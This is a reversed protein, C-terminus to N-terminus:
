LKYYIKNIIFFFMKHKKKNNIAYFKFLKDLYSTDEKLIKLLLYKNYKYIKVLIEVNSKKKYLNKDTEGKSQNIQFNIEELMYCLTILDDSNISIITHYQTCYDTSQNLFSVVLNRNLEKNIEMYRNIVINTFFTHSLIGVYFYICPCGGFLFYFSYTFKDPDSFNIDVLYFYFFLFLIIDFFIQFLILFAISYHLLEFLFSYFAKYKYFKKLFTYLNSNINLKPIKPIKFM